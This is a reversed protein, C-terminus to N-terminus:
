MKFCCPVFAQCILELWPHHQGDGIGTLLLLYHLWPSEFNEQVPIWPLVKDWFGVLSVKLKGEFRQAKALTLTNIWKKLFPLSWNSSFNSLRFNPNWTVNFNLSPYASFPLHFHHSWVKWSKRIFWKDTNWSHTFNFLIKELFLFPFHERLPTGSEYFTLRHAFQVLRYGKHTAASDPVILCDRASGGECRGQSCAKMYPMRFRWSYVDTSLAKM